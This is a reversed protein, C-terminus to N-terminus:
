NEKSYKNIVIKAFRNQIVQNLSFPIFLSYLLTIQLSYRPLLLLMIVPILLLVINGALFNLLNRPLKALVLIVANRYIDKLKLEYQIMMQYIYSQMMCIFVFMIGMLIFIVTRYQKPMKLQRYVTIAIPFAIVLVIQVIQHIVAQKLNEKTKRKLEHGFFVHEREIHRGFITAFATQTPSFCVFLNGVLFIALFLVFHTSLYLAIDEAQNLGLGIGVVLKDVLNAFQPFLISLITNGLLIVAAFFPLNILLWVLNYKTMKWFNHFWIESVSDLTQDNIGAKM